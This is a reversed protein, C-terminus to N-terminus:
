TNATALHETVRRDRVHLMWCLSAFILASGLTIMAPPFRKDGLDREMIVSIVPRDPDAEPTPPAEGPGAIQPVVPQVQLIAYHPPHTVQILHEVKLKIREVFSRDDGLRDKGGTDFAYLTLYDSPGEINPYNGESFFEDVAAEAEGVQTDSMPLLRWEALDIQSAEERFDDGEMQNLDDAPPLDSVDLDRAVDTESVSLDGTNIEVVDWSPASGIMGLGYIWWLLGMMMMWGFFGASALLFGQRTGTNTVLLLYTSGMLVGVGVAVVLIGRITPDWAIGAILDLSNM